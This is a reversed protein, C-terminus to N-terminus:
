RSAEAPGNSVTFRRMPLEFCHSGTAEDRPYLAVGVSVGLTKDEAGAIEFPPVFASLIRGALRTASSPDSGAQLIIFEDGGVRAVIATKSIAKRLREAAQQL